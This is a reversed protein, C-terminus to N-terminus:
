LKLSAPVRQGSLPRLHESPADNLLAPVILLVGGRRDIETNVVVHDCVKIGDATRSGYWCNTLAEARYLGLGGFASRVRFPPHEPAIAYQRGYVLTNRAVKRNRALRVEELCDGPCWRDHRLAYLDYYAQRQNAFLGDWGPTVEGIVRRFAAVDLAENPGDMDLVLVLQFRGFPQERLHNLYFNRAVALRDIRDPWATALGDLGIVHHHESADGWGALVADTGDTNDNTVIVVSCGTCLAKIENIVALTKIFSAGGNRVVGCILM